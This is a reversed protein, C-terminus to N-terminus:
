PCPAPPAMPFPLPPATPGQMSLMRKIVAANRRAEEHAPALDLVRQWQLHAGALNGSRFLIHAKLTNGPIHDPALRLLQDLHGLAQGTEGALSAGKALLYYADRYQPQFRVLQTWERMADAMHNQRAFLLGLNYRADANDPQHALALSYHQKAPEIEDKSTLAGAVCYHFRAPFSIQEASFEAPISSVIATVAGIIAYGACQRFDRRRLAEAIGCMGAGALIALPPVIPMRYRACVHFLIVSPPYLLLVSGLPWTIRARRAVLGIAAFVALLGFPVGFGGIRWVLARLLKSWTRAHHPSFCIPIERSNFFLATKWLMGRLWDAPMAKMYAMARGYFYRDNAKRDAFGDQAAQEFLRTIRDGPALFATEASNPNNGLYFNFGGNLPLVRYHGTVDHNLRAVPLLVVGAGAVLLLALGATRPARLRRAVRIMAWLCLVLCAPLLNARTLIALGVAIGLLAFDVARAKESARIALLPAAVTWFATWTTGLLEGEFYLLPGYVALICGAAIGARFSFLRRGLSCALLCTCTGLLAQLLRVGQPASGLIGYVFSLFAPYFFPQWFFQWSLEGKSVLELAMGHYRSADVIPNLFTPNHLNELLYLLRLAFALVGVGLLAPGHRWTRRDRAQTKCSTSM